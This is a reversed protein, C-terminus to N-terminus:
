ENHLARWLDLYATRVSPHLQEAFYEDLQRARIIDQVDALDRLRHPASMGSALKLEILAPLKLVRIGEVVTTAAPKLHARGQSWRGRWRGRSM